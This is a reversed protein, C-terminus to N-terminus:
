QAEFAPGLNISIERWESFDEAPLSYPACKRVARLARDVAVGMPQRGLPRRRPEVLSLDVINGNRDLEAKMRVNLTEPNPQDSVGTWCPQIYNYLLAELRATNGSREGAGDRTEQPAPKDSLVSRTQVPKPEEKKRTQRESQFTNDADNLFDDLPNARQVPPAPKEPEPTEDEAEEPEAELDPAVDEPTVEEPPTDASATEIEDEPLTDDVPEPDEPPLEEEPEEEPDEPAIEEEPEPDPERIPAINTIEGLDVLEVPIIVYEEDTSTAVSMYPWSVYGVGVVAAHFIISAPLGRLM